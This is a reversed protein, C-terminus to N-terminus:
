PAQREYIQYTENDAIGPEFAVYKVDYRFDPKDIYQMIESMTKVQRTKHIEYPSAIWYGPDHSARDKSRCILLTRFLCNMAAEALADAAQSKPINLVLKWTSDLPLAVVEFDTRGIFEACVSAVPPGLYHTLMRYAGVKARKSKVQFYKFGGETAPIRIVQEPTCMSMAATLIMIVEMDVM